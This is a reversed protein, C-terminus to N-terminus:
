AHDAASSSSNRRPLSVLVVASEVSKAYRSVVTTRPEGLCQAILQWSVGADRSSAVAALLELRTLRAHENAATLLGLADGPVLGMPYRISLNEDSDTVRGEATARPHGIFRMPEFWESPGNKPM